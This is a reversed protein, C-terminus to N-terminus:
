SNALIGLQAMHELTYLLIEFINTHLTKRRSGFIKMRVADTLFKLQVTIETTYVPFGWMKM